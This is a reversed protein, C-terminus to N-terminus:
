KVKKDKVGEPAAPSVDEASATSIMPEFYVDLNSRGPPKRKSVLLSWVFMYLKDRVGKSGYIADFGESRKHWRDEDM